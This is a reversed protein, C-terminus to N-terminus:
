INKTWFNSTWKKTRHNNRVNRPKAFPPNLLVFSDVLLSDTLQRVCDRYSDPHILLKVEVKPYTSNHTAM